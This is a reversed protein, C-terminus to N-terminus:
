GRLAPDTENVSVPICAHPKARRAEVGCTLACLVHISSGTFTHGPSPTRIVRRTEGDGEGRNKSIRFASRQVRKETRNWGLGSEGM